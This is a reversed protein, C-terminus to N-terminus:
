VDDARRHFSPYVVAPLCPAMQGQTPLTKRLSYKPDGVIPFGIYKMHVRIQHTRGTELNVSVLTAEGFREM